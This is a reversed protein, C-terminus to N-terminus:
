FSFNTCYGIFQLHYFMGEAEAMCKQYINWFMALKTTNLYSDLSNAVVKTYHEADTANELSPEVITINKYDISCTERMSEPLM